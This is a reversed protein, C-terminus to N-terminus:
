LAQRGRGHIFTHCGTCRKAEPEHDAIDDHCTMCSARDARARTAHVDHCANCDTHGPGDPEGPIRHLGPLDALAHCSACREQAVVNGGHPEHCSACERHGEPSAELVEEHCTACAAVPGPEHATGSHCSECSAHGQNLRTLRIQEVHCRVCLDREALSGLAFAHPQHCDICATRSAHFSHESDAEEHCDTCRLSLQAARKPHPQHCSICTKGETPPHTSAVAAHCRTCARDGAGRVAHPNHCNMCDDHAKAENAALVVTDAHCTACPLAGAKSFQHAQHCNACSEHGSDFTATLAVRPEGDAHCEICATTESAIAHGAHCDACTGSLEPRGHHLDIGEHCGTCDSLTEEIPEHPHHCNACPVSNHMALGEHTAADFPGHCRVCDWPGEIPSDFKFSHCSFCSTPTHDSGMHSIAAQSEHCSTCVGMDVGEFGDKNPDHCNNCELRQNLVHESHGPSFRDSPWSATVERPPPAAREEVVTAINTTLRQFLLWGAVGLAILVVVGILARSM